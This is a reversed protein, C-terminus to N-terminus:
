DWRAAGDKGQFVIAKRILWEANGWVRVMFPFRVGRLSHPFDRPSQERLTRLDETTLIALELDTAGVICRAERRAGESQPDGATM